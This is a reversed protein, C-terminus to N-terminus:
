LKVWRPRLAEQCTVGARGPGKRSHAKELVKSRAEM